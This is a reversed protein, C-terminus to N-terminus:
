IYCMPARAIDIASLTAFSPFRFAPASQGAHAAAIDPPGSLFPAASMEHGRLRLARLVAAAPANNAAPAATSFKVEAGLSM